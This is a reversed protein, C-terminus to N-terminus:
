RAGRGADAREQKEANIRASNLQCAKESFLTNLAMNRNAAQSV